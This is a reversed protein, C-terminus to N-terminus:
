LKFNFQEACMIFFVLVKMYITYNYSETDNAMIYSYTGNLTIFLTLMVPLYCFLIINESDKSSLYIDPLITVIKQGIFVIIKPIM